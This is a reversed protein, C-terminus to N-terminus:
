LLRKMICKTRSSDESGRGNMGQPVTEGGVHCFFVKPTMLGKSLIELSREAYIKMAQSLYEAIVERSLGGYLDKDDLM